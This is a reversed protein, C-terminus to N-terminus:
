SDRQSGVYNILCFVVQAVDKLHVSEQYLAGVTQLRRGMFEWVNEPQRTPLLTQVGRKCPREQPFSGLAHVFNKYTRKYPSCRDRRNQRQSLIESTPITM